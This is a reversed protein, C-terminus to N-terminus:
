ADEELSAIWTAMTAASVGDVRVSKVRATAGREVRVASRSVGLTKGLLAELAANAKGDEPAARVRAKVHAVGASDAALGDIRDAGGSPTLRVRLVVGDATERFATSM